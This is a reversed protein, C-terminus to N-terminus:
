ARQLQKSQMVEKYEEVQKDFWSPGSKKILNLGMREIRFGLRRAGELGIVANDMNDPSYGMRQKFGPRKKEGPKAHSDKPEIEIKNDGTKSFRRACGERMTDKDLGRIQQSQITETMSFYMESVFKVYHEDCRKLRKRGDEEEVFLDFRVPRNTPRMGSDVPVPCDSGMIKAFAFGLTGRGFSDYFCHKAPIKLEELRVKIFAAIQDEPDIPTNAKVPVLEPEYLLLISRGTIDEGFEMRRGVCRDGGGYAPDLPYLNTNKSDDKWIVDELAKNRECFDKTMVRWIDAGKAPKGVCQSWWQWSDEGHTTRTADLKKPGIYYKYRVKGNVIPFDNNPSDRGDLALVHADYFRSRWTQTKGSDQWNDWGEIPESAMGLPDDTLMFNGAMMGKFDEKGYWNSYANLFSENMVQVEDGCHRLRPAKIGIYPALGSSLGGTKCPIVIIGRRLSRAEFGDEDV